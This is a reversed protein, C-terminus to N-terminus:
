SSETHNQFIFLIIFMVIRLIKSVNECCVILVINFYHKYNFLQPVSQAQQEIRIHREDIAGLCNSFNWMEALKKQSM